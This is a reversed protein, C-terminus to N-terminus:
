SLPQPTNRVNPGVDFSVAFQSKKLPWFPYVLSGACCNIQQWDMALAPTLLCVMPAMTPLTMSIKGKYSQGKVIPCKVIGNCMNTDVGPVPIDLGFVKATAELKATNSDQDSVIEFYLSALTGRKMTCPDSTCPEVQVSVIEATSGCDEYVADRIQAVASGVAVLFLVARMM